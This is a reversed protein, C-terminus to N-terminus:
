LTDLAEFAADDRGIHVHGDAAVIAFRSRLLRVLQEKVHGDGYDRHADQDADGQADPLQPDDEDGDRHGQGEGQRHEVQVPVGEVPDGQEREDEGDADQHVVGDDHHLVDHAVGPHGGVFAAGDDVDGDLRHVLHAVGGDQGGHGDDGGDQGHGEHAPEHAGVHPGDRHAGRRGHDEREDDGEHDGRPGRDPEELQAPAVPVVLLLVQEGPEVPPRHIVQEVTRRVPVAEQQHHDHEKEARHSQDEDLEDLDLHKGEVVLALELDDHVHGLPGGQLGGRHDGAAQGLLHQFVGLHHVQLRVGARRRRVVEVAQHPVVEQALAGVHGVDLDVKQGLAVAIELAVVDGLLDAGVEHGDGPREAGPDLHGLHRRARRHELRQDGLDVAGILGALV